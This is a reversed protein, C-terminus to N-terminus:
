QGVDRAVGVRSALRADFALPAIGLKHVLV